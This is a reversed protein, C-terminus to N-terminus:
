NIIQHANRLAEAQRKEYPHRCNYTARINEQKNKIKYQSTFIKVQEPLETKRM